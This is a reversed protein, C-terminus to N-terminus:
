ISQLLKILSKYNTQKGRGGMFLGIWYRLFLFGIIMQNVVKTERFNESNKVSLREVSKM